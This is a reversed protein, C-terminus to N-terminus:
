YARARWVAFVVLALLVLFAVFVGFAPRAIARLAAQALTGVRSGGPEWALFQELMFAPPRAGAIPWGWASSCRPLRSLYTSFEAATDIRDSSEWLATAICLRLGFFSSARDWWRAFSDPDVTTRGYMQLIGFCGLGATRALVDLKSSSPHFTIGVRRRWSLRALERGFAEATADEVHEGDPEWDVICNDVGYRSCKEDLLELGDPWTSSRFRNPMAYFWPTAGRRRAEDAQAGADFRDANVAIHSWPGAEIDDRAFICHGMPPMGFAALAGIL